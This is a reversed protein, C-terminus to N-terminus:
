NDLMKGKSKLFDPFSNLLSESQSMSVISKRVDKTNESVYEEGGWGAEEGM